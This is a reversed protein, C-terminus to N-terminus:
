VRWVLLQLKWHGQVVM